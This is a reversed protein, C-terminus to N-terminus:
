SGDVLRHHDGQDPDEGEVVDEGRHQQRGIRLQLRDPSPTMFAQSSAGRVLSPAKPAPMRKPPRPAARRKEPRPRRKKPSDIRWAPMRMRPEASIMQAKTKM